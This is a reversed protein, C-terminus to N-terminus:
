DILYDFQKRLLPHQKYERLSIKDATHLKVVEALDDDTLILCYGRKDKASDRCRDEALKRNKISRCVLIGVQGRDPSFRGTLQDFENNAIEGSYNKCEVVITAASYHQAIWSFFGHTEINDYTIDIRKRGGHIEKEIRENGLSTDFLANLLDVIARHYSTAGSRGPAIAGVANLLEQVDVQPSGTAATFEAESPPPASQPTISLKYADLASPHPISNAAIEPKSTGLLQDLKGKLVRKRGGKLTEVLDSASKHLELDEYVPRLYDRYYADKSTISKFRVISKPVLLLKKDDSRPLLVDAEKWKKAIHDWILGSHQTEMPIQYHDCMNQTYLILQGRIINTTMDSVIDRGIGPIFLVTDELDRLLGSTGAKSQRLAEIVEISRRGGGLGRGKSEFKSQGLHTENPESLSKVLDRIESSTGDRITKLLYDFFSQLMAQCSTSWQGRQLSIAKPDIYAPTDTTPDIDVFDLGGQTVGLHYMESIRM